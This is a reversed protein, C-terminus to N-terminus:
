RAEVVEPEAEAFRGAGAERTFTFEGREDVDVVIRDDPEFEGSLVRKALPNEVRREITRRLPRAGYNPDYGEKVLVARAADTVRFDVRREALREHVEDIILTAIQAIEPETLPEFVVIDDLRNLFEPRFARKLADEVTRT